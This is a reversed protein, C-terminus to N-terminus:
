AYKRSLTKREWWPSWLPWLWPLALPGFSSGGFVFRFLLLPLFSLLCLTRQPDFPWLGLPWLAFPCMIETQECNQSMARCPAWSALSVLRPVSPVGADGPVRPVSPVGVVGPPTRHGQVTFNPCSQKCNQNMAIRNSTRQNSVWFFIRWKAPQSRPPVWPTQQNPPPTTNLPVLITFLCKAFLSANGLLPLGSFLPTLRPHKGIQVRGDKKDRKTKKPVKGIKWSKGLKEPINEIRGKWREWRVIEILVGIVFLGSSLPFGGPKAEGLFRLGWLSPTAVSFLLFTRLFQFPALPMGSVGQFVRFIGETKAGKWFSLRAFMQWLHFTSSGKRRFKNQNVGLSQRLTALLASTWCSWNLLANARVSEPTLTWGPSSALPLVNSGGCYGISSCIDVLKGGERDPWAELASWNFNPTARM